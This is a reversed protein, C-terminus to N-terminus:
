ACERLMEHDFLLVPFLVGLPVNEGFTIVVSLNYPLKPLTNTRFTKICQIPVYQQKIMPQRVLHVERFAQHSGGLLQFRLTPAQLRFSANSAAGRPRGSSSADRLSVRATRTQSKEETNFDSKM